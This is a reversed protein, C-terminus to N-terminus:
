VASTIKGSKSRAHDGVAGPKTNNPQPEAGFETSSADPTLKSELTSSVSAFRQAMSNNM